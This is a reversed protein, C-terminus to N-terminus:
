MADMRFHKCESRNALPAIVPVKKLKKMDQKWGGAEAARLTTALTALNARV